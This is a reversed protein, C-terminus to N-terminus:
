IGHNTRIMRREFGIYYKEIKDEYPMKGDIYFSM